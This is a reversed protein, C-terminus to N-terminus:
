YFLFILSPLFLMLILTSCLTLRVKRYLFKDVLILFDSYIDLQQRVIHRIANLVLLIFGYIIVSYTVRVSYKDILLLFIFGSCLLFYIVFHFIAPKIVDLGIHFYPSEIRNGEKKVLSKNAFYFYFIAHLTALVTLRIIAIHIDEVKFLGLLLFLITPAAFRIQGLCFEVFFHKRGAILVIWDYHKANVVAGYIVLSIYSCGVLFGLSIWFPFSSIDSTYFLYGPLPGFILVVPQVLIVLVIFFRVLFYNSKVFERLLAKEVVRYM